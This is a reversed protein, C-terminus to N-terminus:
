AGAAAQKPRQLLLLSRGRLTVTADAGPRAGHDSPAPHSTDFVASWLAPNLDEPVRFAVDDHHSNLLLLFDDDDVHKGESDRIESAGRKRPTRPIISFAFRLARPERPSFPLTRAKDM